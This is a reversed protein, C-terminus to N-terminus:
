NALHTESTISTSLQRAGNAQKEDRCVRAHVFSAHWAGSILDSHITHSSGAHLCLCRDSSQFVTLQTAPSSCVSSILGELAEALNIKHYVIHRQALSHKRITDAYHTHKHIHGTSHKRGSASATTRCFWNVLQRGVM